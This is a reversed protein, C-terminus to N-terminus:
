GVLVPIDCVPRPIGYLDAGATELGLLQTLSALVENASTIFANVGDVVNKSYLDNVIADLNLQSTVNIDTGITRTIGNIRVTGTIDSATITTQPIQVGGTGGVSVPDSYDQPPVAYTALSSSAPQTVGYGANVTINFTAQTGPLLTLLGFLSLGSSQLVSAASISGTLQIPVTLSVNSLMRSVMVDISEPDALTAEGCTISNLVGTAGALDVVLSMPADGVSSLGAITPVNLTPNVRFQVQATSVEAGPTGCAMQPGQLIQLSSTGESVQPASWFVPLDLFSNGNAVFAAVGVLNLVNLATALAASNGTSLDIVSDIDIMLSGDVAAALSELFAVDAASGGENDLATASFFDRLSINEVSALEQTSGVGLETAISGLTVEADALGSYDLASLNLADSLYQNLYPTNESSLRAAFSGLSFCANSKLKGVPGPPPPPPPGGGDDGVGGSGSRAGGFGPAFAFDVVTDASVMVGDPIEIGTVERVVGSVERLPVGAVDLMVLTATVTPTEGLTTTNNRAVSAAKAQELPVMDGSGAMIQEATRGNILRALDLAVSDALRQMDRRAVRQMGLDVALMAIGMIVVMILAVLPVVAGREDREDRRRNPTKM